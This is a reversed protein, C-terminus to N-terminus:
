QQEIKTDVTEATGGGAGIDFCRLWPTGGGAGIDFCRLWPTGGGAGIDFCRLWPSKWCTWLRCIYATM